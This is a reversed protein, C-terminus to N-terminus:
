RHMLKFANQISNDAAAIMKYIKDDVRYRYSSFTLGVDGSAILVGFRRRCNTENPNKGVTQGSAIM